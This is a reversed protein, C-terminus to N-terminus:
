GSLDVFNTQIRTESLLWFTKSCPRWFVEFLRQGGVAAFEHVTEKCGNM